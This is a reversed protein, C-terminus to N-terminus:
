AAPAGSEVAAMSGACNVMWPTGFRDVMMGFREAWFTKDIPMQVNGGEALANFIRDAEAPEDVNISVYLGQPQAFTGAPADSGMLTCTGVKLSVHMIHDLTGPPCEAAMPSEGFTAMFEIKGGLVQEYFKFAERCQGNFNLYPDLRIM